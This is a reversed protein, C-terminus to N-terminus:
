SAKQTRQAWYGDPMEGHRSSRRLVNANPAAVIRACAQNTCRATYWTVKELRETPEGLLYDGCHRCTGVHEGAQVAHNWAVSNLYGASDRLRRYIGHEFPDFKHAM